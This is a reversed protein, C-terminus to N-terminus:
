LSGALICVGGQAGWPSRGASMGVSWLPRGGGDAPVLSSLGNGPLCLRRTSSMGKAEQGLGVINECGTM